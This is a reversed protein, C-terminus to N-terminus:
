AAMAAGQRAADNLTPVICLPPSVKWSLLERRVRESVQFLVLRVGRGLLQHNYACLVGAAEASLTDVRKCDVWVAPKGSRSACSLAHDLGEEPENASSPTLILLYSEPLVEHYVLTM